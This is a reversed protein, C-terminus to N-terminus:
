YDTLFTVIKGYNRTGPNADVAIGIIKGNFPHLLRLQYGNGYPVRIVSGNNMINKILTPTFGKSMGYALTGHTTYGNFTIKFGHIYWSKNGLMLAIESYASYRTSLSFIKNKLESSVNNGFALFLIQSFNEPSFVAMMFLGKQQLYIQNVLNNIKLVDWHELGSVAMMEEIMTVFDSGGHDRLYELQAQRRLDPDTIGEVYNQWAEESGAGGGTGPWFGNWNNQSWIPSDNVGGEPSQDYNQEEDCEMVFIQTCDLINGDYYCYYEEVFSGSCGNQSLNENSITSKKGKQNIPSIYKVVRGDEVNWGQLFQEDWTFLRVTGSYDPSLKLFSNETLNKQKAKSEEPFFKLMSKKYGGFGDSILILRYFADKQKQAIKSESKEGRTPVANFNHDVQVEIIKGGEHVIANDWNIKKTQVRGRSSIDLANPIQFEDQTGFWIKASELIKQDVSIPIKTPEEDRV